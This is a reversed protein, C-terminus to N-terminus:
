NVLNANQKCIMQATQDAIVHPPVAVGETGDEKKFTFPPEWTNNEKANTYRTSM